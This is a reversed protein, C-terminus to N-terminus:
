NRVQQIPGFSRRDKQGSRHSLHYLSFMKTKFYAWMQPQFRNVTSTTHPQELCKADILRLKGM